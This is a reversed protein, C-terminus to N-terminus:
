TYFERMISLVSDYIRKFEKTLDEPTTTIIGHNKSSHSELFMQNKYIYDYTKKRVTTKAWKDFTLIKYKCKGKQCDYAFGCIWKPNQQNNGCRPCQCYQLNYFGCKKCIEYDLPIFNWPLFTTIKNENLINMNDQNIENIGISYIQVYVLTSYVFLHLKSQNMNICIRGPLISPTPFKWEKFPISSDPISYLEESIEGNCIM